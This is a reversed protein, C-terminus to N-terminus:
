VLNKLATKGGENIIGTIDTKHNLINLIREDYSDKCFFTFVNVNHNRNESIPVIRDEAQENETPNWAKDPFITTEARDLTFGVGASIVNCLLVDLEGCQFAQVTQQKELNSMEGHIMGVRKLIQSKLLKLYSTFMSMIVVPEDNNDLYELIAKTKVSEVDFGLLKPDLCLQRMRMIQTLVNPTDVVTDDDDLYAMFEDRMREYLKWQKEGMKLPINSYEKAPLWPMVESRKRQVSMFGVLEQLEREREPKARGIVKHGMEDEGIEFYREVFQWYSTFKKPYLFSLIGFIDETLKVTPTGTLAYRHKAKVNCVAKSQATKRNRLFHAEDVFCTDFEFKKWFEFDRKWTDKSVILVRASHWIQYHEATAQRKKPAGTLVCVHLDPAWKEFEAAWNWILSAPAIVINKNTQLKKILGISTPTKGTRQQNFIGASPLRRLYDIDSVQYPRLRPDADPDHVEAEKLEAARRRAQALINAGKVFISNDKLQPFADMLEKFVWFNKPFRYM